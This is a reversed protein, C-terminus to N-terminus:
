DLFVCTNSFVDSQNVMPGMSMMKKKRIQFRGELIRAVKNQKWIAMRKTVNDIQHSGARNCNYKRKAGPFLPPIKNLAIIIKVKLARVGVRPPGTGPGSLSGALGGKLSTAFVILHSHCVMWEMWSWTRNSTEVSGGSWSSDSASLCGSILTM